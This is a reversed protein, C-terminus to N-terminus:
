NNAAARRMMGLGVLLGGTLLAAIAYGLPATPNPGGTRALEPPAPPEEVPPNACLATADPYEVTTTYEPNISFTVEVGTRTWAYNGLTAVYEGDVLAWGPWMQPDGDSAGPWLRQGSRPSDTWVVDQTSDTPHHWTITLPGEQPATVDYSFYPVDGICVATIDGPIIGCELANYDENNAPRTTIVTDVLVEEGGYPREYYNTTITVDLDTCSPLDELVEVRQEPGVYCDAEPNTGQYGKPGDLSGTIPNVTGEVFVAGEDATASVSFDGPGETGSPTSSADFTANTINGEGYELIEGAECTAPVIGVDFKADDPVPQCYQSNQDNDIYKWPQKVVEWALHEEPNNPGYLKAGKILSWTTDDDLYLDVQYDLCADLKGDLQDLSTEGTEVYTFLNQGGEPWTNEPQEGTVWAVLVYPTPDPEVVEAAAPFASLASGGAVLLATIGAAIYKRM